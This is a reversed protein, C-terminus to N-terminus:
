SSRLSMCLELYRILSAGCLTRDECRLFERDPDGAAELIRRLLRLRLPQGDPIEDLGKEGLDQVELWSCFLRVMEAQLKENRVLKCSSEGGSAMRFDRELDRETGVYNPVLKKLERRLWYWGAGDASRRRDHPWREPSCPGGGDYCFLVSGTAMIAM